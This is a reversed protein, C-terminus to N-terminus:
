KTLELLEYKLANELDDDFSDDYSFAFLIWKDKPKYFEFNIRIPQRDYKVLYTAIVFCDKINKKILLEHGNYEGVLTKLDRFQTKLKEVDDKIRELWPTHSYLEDLAKVPENKQYTKFFSDMMEEPSQANAVNVIGMFALAMILLKIKM